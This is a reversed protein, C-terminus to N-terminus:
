CRVQARCQPGNGLDHRSGKGRRLVARAPVRGRCADGGTFPTGGSLVRFLLPANCDPVDGCPGWERPTGGGQHPKWMGAMAPWHFRKQDRTLLSLGASDAKLLAIVADSLAQLITGPSDVLAQALALLAHNETAYDPARPPRRNLQETCLVSELPLLTDGLAIRASDGFAPEM